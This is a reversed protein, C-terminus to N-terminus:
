SDHVMQSADINEMFFLCNGSSSRRYKVRIMNQLVHLGYGGDRGAAYRARLDSGPLQLPNFPVSEDKMVFFLFSGARRFFFHLHASARGHEISNSAAEDMAQVLVLAQADSLFGNASERVWFRLEALASFDPRLFFEARRSM